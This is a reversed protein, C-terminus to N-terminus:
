YDHILLIFLINISRSGSLCPLPFASQLLCTNSLAQKERMRHFGLWRKQMGHPTPHGLVGKSGFAWDANGIMEGGPKEARTLPPLEDARLCLRPASLGARGAAGGAPSPASCRARGPVGPLPPWGLSRRQGASGERRCCRRSSWSICLPARSYAQAGERSGAGATSPTFFGFGAWGGLFASDRSTSVGPCPLGAPGTDSRGRRERPASAKRSIRTGRGTGSGLQRERPAPAAGSTGTGTGTRLHQDRERPAPAKGSHRHRERPAPAAAAGAGDLRASRGASHGAGGAPEGAWQSGPSIQMGAGRGWGPEAPLHGAGPAARRPSLGGRPHRSAHACHATGNRRWRGRPRGKVKRARAEGGALPPKGIRHSYNLNGSSLTLFIREEHKLAPTLNFDKRANHSGSPFVGVVKGDNRVSTFVWCFELTVINTQKYDYVNILQVFLSLPQKLRKSMPLKQKEQFDLVYGKKRRKM